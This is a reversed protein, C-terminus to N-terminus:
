KPNIKKLFNNLFIFGLFCFAIAIVYSQRPYASIGEYFCRLVSYVRFHTLVAGNGVREVCFM